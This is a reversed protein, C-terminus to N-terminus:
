SGYPPKEQALSILSTDAGVRAIRTPLCYAWIAGVLRSRWPHPNNSDGPELSANGFSQLHDWWAHCCEVDIFDDRDTRHSRVLIGKEGVEIIDNIVGQALTRVCPYEPHDPCCPQRKLSDQLEVWVQEWLIKM